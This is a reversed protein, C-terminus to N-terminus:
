SSTCNPLAATHLGGRLARVKVPMLGTNPSIKILNPTTRYIPITYHQYIRFHYACHPTNILPLPQPHPGLFRLWAFTRTNGPFARTKAPIGAFVRCKASKASKAALFASRVRKPKRSARPVGYWKKILSPRTQNALFEWVPLTRAHAPSPGTQLSNQSFPLGLICSFNGPMPTVHDYSPFEHLLWRLASPYL